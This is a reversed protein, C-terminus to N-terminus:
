IRQGWPLAFLPASNSTPTKLAQASHEAPQRFHYKIAKSRLNILDLPALRGTRVYDPLAADRLRERAYDQMEASASGSVFGDTIDVRGTAADINLNAAKFGSGPEMFLTLADNSIRGANLPLTLDRLRASVTKDTLEIDVFNFSVSAMQGVRLFDGRGLNIATNEALTARFGPAGNSPTFVVNKFLSGVPAPTTSACNAACHKLSSTWKFWDGKFFSNSGIPLRFLGAAASALEPRNSRCQSQDNVLKFTSNGEDLLGGQGVSVRRVEVVACFDNKRIVVIVPAEKFYLEAQYIAGDRYDFSHQLTKTNSNKITFNYDGYTGAFLGTNLGAVGQGAASDVGEVLTEYTPSGAAYAVSPLEAAYAGSLFPFNWLLFFFAFSAWIRSM